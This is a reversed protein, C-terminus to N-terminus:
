NLDHLQILSIFRNHMKCIMQGTITALVTIFLGRRYEALMDGIM